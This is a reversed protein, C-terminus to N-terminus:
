KSEKLAPTALAKVVNAIKEAERETLDYPIDQIMVTRDDRLPIPLIRDCVAQSKRRM